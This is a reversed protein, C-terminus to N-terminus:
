INVMIRGCEGSRLIDFGANIEDLSINHTICNTVDLKGQEYLKIYRNFDRSPDICGGQTAKIVIGDGTFLKIPSYISLDNNPLPESVLIVRGYKSLKPIYKSVLQLNGTTDIICDIGDPINTSDSNVIIGGNETIHSHKYEAKDVGYVAACNALKCAFIINLGVGGCGIVLVQEGFKINADYNVVGLATSLSCGLLACIEDPLKDPVTTVRNESVISYESLTTVQGATIIKSNYIYKPSMSEIGDGKRWHMIVKDGPKVTKVGEGIEQVIGCGEHGVLHPLFKENGKAGSIEQLQAGCIGSVKNKILVQGFSLPTLTVDSIKFPTNLQTLVAAKM